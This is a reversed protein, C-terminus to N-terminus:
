ISRGRKKWTDIFRERVRGAMLRAAWTVLPPRQNLVANLITTTMRSLEQSDINALVAQVYAPIRAPDQAHIDNVGRAMATMAKGVAVPVDTGSEKILGQVLRVAAPGAKKLPEADMQEALTKIISLLMPASFKEEAQIILESVFGILYNLINPLGDVLSLLVGVDEWLFHRMLQAGDKPDISVMKNWMMEKVFPTNLVEQLISGNAASSPIADNGNM